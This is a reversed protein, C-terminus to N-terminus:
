EDPITNQQILLEDRVHHIIGTGNPTGGSAGIDLFQL